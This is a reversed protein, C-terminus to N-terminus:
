PRKMALKMKGSSVTRFNMKFSKLVNVQITVKFLGKSVIIVSEMMRVRINWVIKYQLHNPNAIQFSIIQIAVNNVNLVTGNLVIKQCSQPVITEPIAKNANKVNEKTSM